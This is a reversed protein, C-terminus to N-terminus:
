ADVDVGRRRLVDLWPGYSEDDEPIWCGTLADTTNSSEGLAADIIAVREKVLRPGWSWWAGCSLQFLDELAAGVFWSGSADAPLWELTRRWVELLAPACPVARARFPHSWDGYLAGVWDHPGTPEADHFWGSPVGKGSLIAHVDDVTQKMQRAMEDLAARAEEPTDPGDRAELEDVVLFRRSAQVLSVAGPTRRGRVPSLPDRGGHRVEERLHDIYHSACGAADLAAEVAPWGGREVVEAELAKPAWDLPHGSLGFEEWPEDRLRAIAVDIVPDDIRYAAVCADYEERWWPLSM